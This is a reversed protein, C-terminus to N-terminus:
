GEFGFGFICYSGISSRGLMVCEALKYIVCKERSMSGTTEGTADIAIAGSLAEESM